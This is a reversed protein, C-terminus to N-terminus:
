SGGHWDYEMYAATSAAVSPGLLREVVHFSGDIGASIGGTTIIRGTDVFRVDALVDADPALERLHDLVEHHTTVRLGSLLGARALIRAGSCISLVIQAGDSADKVWRLLEENEMEQRTGSGGAVVLIDVPPCTTFTYDPQIRLGNVARILRDEQAVLSVKFHQYDNLEATIGFVEFPGAFDLVEVEDFVLIAVTRLGASMLSEGPKPHPQYTEKPRPRPGREPVGDPHSVRAGEELRGEVKNIGM